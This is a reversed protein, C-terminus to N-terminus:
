WVNTTSKTFTLPIKIDGNNQAVKIPFKPKTAQLPIFKKLIASKPHASSNQCFPDTAKAKTSTTSKRQAKQCRRGEPLVHPLIRLNTEDRSPREQNDRRENMEEDSWTLGIQWNQQSNKKGQRM